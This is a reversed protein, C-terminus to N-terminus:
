CPMCWSASALTILVWVSYVARRGSVILFPKAKVRGVVSAVGAYIAVAFALLIALSGSIKWIGGKFAPNLAAISTPYGPWTEPEPKAEYKSACKAQINAAHFTGDRDMKGEALAQAGDRFTDPLPDLGSYVVKLDQKDQKLVFVVQKGHHEISGTAVDGGVRLRQGYAQDGM